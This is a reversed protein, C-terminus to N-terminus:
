IYILTFLILCNILSVKFLETVHNIMFTLCENSAKNENMARMDPMAKKYRFCIIIKFEFLM